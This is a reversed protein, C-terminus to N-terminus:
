VCLVEEVCDGVCVDGGFYGECVGCVVSGVVVVFLVVGGRRAVGEIDM